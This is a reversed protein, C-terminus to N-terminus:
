GRFRSMVMMMTKNKMISIISKNNGDYDDYETMMVKMKQKKSMRVMITKLLMMMMFSMRTMMMMMMMNNMESTTTMVMMLMTMTGAPRPQDAAEWGNPPAGVHLQPPLALSETAARFSRKTYLQSMPDRVSAADCPQQYCKSDATDEFTPLIDVEFPDPLDEFMRLSFIKSPNLSGRGQSYALLAKPEHLGGQRGTHCQYSGLPVCTFCVCIRTMQMPRSNLHTCYNSLLHM